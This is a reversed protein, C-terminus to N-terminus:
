QNSELARDGMPSAEAALLPETLPADEEKRHAKLYDGGGRPKPKVRFLREINSVPREV